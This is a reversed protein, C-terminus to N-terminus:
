TWTLELKVSKERECTPGGFAIRPRYETLTACVRLETLLDRLDRLYKTLGFVKPNHRFM